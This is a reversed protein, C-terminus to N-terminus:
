GPEVVSGGWSAAMSTGDAPPAPDNSVSFFSVVIVALAAVFHGILLVCILTIARDTLRLGVPAGGRVTAPSPSAPNAKPKGSPAPLQRPAGGPGRLRPDRVVFAKRAPNVVRVSM